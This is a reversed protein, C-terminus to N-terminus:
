GLSTMPNTARAIRLALKRRLSRISGRIMERGLVGTSCTLLGNLANPHLNSANAESKNRIIVATAKRTKRTGKTEVFPPPSPAASPSASSTYASEIILLTSSSPIFESCISSESDPRLFLNLMQIPAKAIAAPIAREFPIEHGSYTLSQFPSPTISAGPDQCIASPVPNSIVGKKRAIISPRVRKVADVTASITLPLM